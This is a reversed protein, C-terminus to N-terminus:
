RLIQWFWVSHSATIWAWNSRPNRNLKTLSNGQPLISDFLFSIFLTAFWNVYPYGWWFRQLVYVLSLERTMHNHSLHFSFHSIDYSFGLRHSKLHFCFAIPCSLQKNQANRHCFATKQLIKYFMKQCKKETHTRRSLSYNFSHSWPHSITFPQIFTEGSLKAGNSWRIRFKSIFFLKSTEM